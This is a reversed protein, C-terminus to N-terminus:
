PVVTASGGGWTGTSIAAGNADFATNREFTFSGTGAVGRSQFELTVLTGSGSVGGVAGLRSLGVVVRGSGVELVQFSTTAGGLFPGETASTFTLIQSPYVVDFAVGYLGSMQQARLDLRLTTPSGGAAEILNLNASTSSPSFTIGAVPQTPGGGGGGGGGGCAVVLAAGFLALRISETRRKM